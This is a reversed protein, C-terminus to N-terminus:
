KPEPRAVGEETLLTDGAYTIREGADMLRKFQKRSLPAFSQVHLTEVDEEGVRGDVDARDVGFVKPPVGQMAEPENTHTRARTQPRTHPRANIQM